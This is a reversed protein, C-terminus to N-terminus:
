TNISYNFNHHFKEHHLRREISDLISGVKTLNKATFLRRELRERPSETEKSLCTLNGQKAKKHNGRRRKNNPDIVQINQGTAANIDAILDPDQWPMLQKGSEEALRYVDPDKKDKENEIEGVANRAVIKGHFPCKYRDMRPCLKGNKLPARCHWKVPEIKGIFTKKALQPAQKSETIDMERSQYLPHSGTDVRQTVTACFELEDLNIVPAIELELKRRKKKEKNTENDDEENNDDNDSPQNTKSKSTCPRSEDETPKNVKPKTPTPNEIPIKLAEFQKLTSQISNKLEIAKKLNSTGTKILNFNKLWTNIKNLHSNKLEKYLDRMIDIVIKNEENEKLKVDVQLSFNTSETANLFGLYRLEIDPDDDEALNHSKVEEFDDSCDSDADSDDHEPEDPLVTNIRQVLRPKKSATEEFLDEVKPVLIEICRELQNVCNRIDEETDNMEKVYEVYKKNQIITQKENQKQVHSRQAVSQNSFSVFDVKKCNKLYSFGLDLLKYVDAFKDHWNKIVKPALKKLEAAAKKPPPLPRAMNIELVHEFITQFNDLVLERFVHSKQFLCDMIQFASYRIESHEKVLQTMVIEYSYKCNLDDERCITKIQKLQGQDLNLSGTSCLGVILDELKYRADSM